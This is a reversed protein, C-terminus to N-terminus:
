DRVVSGATTAIRVAKAGDRMIGKPDEGRNVAQIATRLIRRFM